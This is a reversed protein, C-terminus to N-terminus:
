LHRNRIAIISAIAALAIGLYAVYQWGAQDLMPALGSCIAGGLFFIAIYLGNMRSRAAQNLGLIVRQTSVHSFQVGADIIIAAVMWAALSPLLTLIFGFCVLIAGAIRMTTAHGRDGAHGAIPAGIAGGAGALAFLAIDTQGLNFDSGLALPAATWFLSFGGFLCAQAMALRRLPPHNKLLAPQSAVLRGYPLTGGPLHRPLTLRLVVIFLGLFLADAIYIDRWSFRTSILSAAPRAIMAGTLIGSTITGVVRGRLHPACLHSAMAIIIQVGTTMMGVLLAAVLLMAANGAMGMMLLGLVLVALIISVLRRNEVRDGLPAILVLGLCFGLQLLMIISGANSPALGIDGAIIGLIPQAFYGSGAILTCGAALLLTLSKPLTYGTEQIADANDNVPNATNTPPAAPISSTRDHSKM